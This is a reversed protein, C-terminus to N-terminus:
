RYSEPLRGAGDIDPEDDRLKDRAVSLRCQIDALYIRTVLDDPGIDALREDLAVAIRLGGELLEPLTLTGLAARDAPTFEHGTM